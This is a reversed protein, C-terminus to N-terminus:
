NELARHTEKLVAGAINDTKGKAYLTLLVLEEAEYHTFYIVPVGGSKGTVRRKWRVKRIGSSEPVVDGAEPSVCRREMNIAEDDLLHHWRRVVAAEEESEQM